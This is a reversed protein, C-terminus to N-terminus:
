PRAVNKDLYEDTALLTEELPRAGVIGDPWAFETEDDLRLLDRWGGSDVPIVFSKSRTRLLAQYLRAQAIMMRWFVPRDAPRFRYIANAAAALTKRRHEDEDSFVDGYLREFEGFGMLRRERENPSAVTMLDLTGELRGMTQGQWWYTQPSTERLARWGVAFPTYNISPTIQAMLFDDKMSGYLRSVLHYQFEIRPELSFDVLTLGRSMSRVVALPAYLGYLTSVVEYKAAPLTARLSAPPNPESEALESWVDAKTLNKIRDLAYDALELLQFLAPEFRDYLRRRAEYAYDLKAKQVMVELSLGSRLEEFAVVRQHQQRAALNYIALV